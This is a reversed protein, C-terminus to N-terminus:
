LIVECCETSSFERFDWLSQECSGCCLMNRVLLIINYLIKCKNEFVDCKTINSKRIRGMMILPTWWKWLRISPFPERFMAVAVVVPREGHWNIPASSVRAPAFRYGRFRIISRFPEKECCRGYRILSEFLCIAADVVRRSISMISPQGKSRSDPRHCSKSAMLALPPSENHWKQSEGPWFTGESLNSFM